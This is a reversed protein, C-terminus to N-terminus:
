TRMFLRTLAYSFECTDPMGWSKTTIIMLHITRQLHLPGDVLLPQGTTVSDSNKVAEVQRHEGSNSVNSSKASQIRDFLGAIFANTKQLIGHVDEFEICHSIADDIAPINKATHCFDIPFPPCDLNKAEVVYDITNIIMSTATILPVGLVMNVSGQPGTAIVFSTPSGDRTLYPLHFQFIVSLDTTVSHVNDKVIGSLIIPSYDEPLFPLVTPTSSVLLAQGTSIAESAITRINTYETEAHIAAQLMEQLVKRLHTSTRAQLKSYNPFHTRFSALLQSDIGDIFAQCISILLVEQDIFPSSAALIQTHYDFVLLSFITNGTADNYTQWIHNLAAHPEKSYGPCLQNFLHDLISPTALCIIKL